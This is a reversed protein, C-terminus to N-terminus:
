LAHSGMESVSCFVSVKDFCIFHYSCLIGCNLGIKTLKLRSKKNHRQTYAVLYSPDPSSKPQQSHLYILKVIYKYSM